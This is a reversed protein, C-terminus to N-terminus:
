CGSPGSILLGADNDHDDTDRHTADNMCAIRVFRIRQSYVNTMKTLRKRYVILMAPDVHVNKITGDEWPM